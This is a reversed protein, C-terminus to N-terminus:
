RDDVNNNTPTVAEQEDDNEDNDDATNSQNDNGDENEKAEEEAAKLEEDHFYYAYIDHAVMMSYSSAYGNPIVVTISIEPNEYPAYSVFLAHASRTSDEEATGTKGAIKTYLDEFDAGHSDGNVVNYMGEHIQSWVDARLEVDSYIDPEYEKITEGDSNTQKDLISLNYCKGGNAVASVYKSLQVPAFSNSGQGIASRIADQDSLHPNVEDLEVGSTSDLGYMAAYKSLKKLGQENDINGDPKQALRYGVEFFFVNCSNEIAGCVDLKGHRGPWISCKPSPNVVDYIGKCNIKEGISIVNEMLGASAAVMKFTSGPALSSQTARNLFPSTKDSILSSYYDEDLGNALKNNNYSPYSVLAKIKGTKTDTVVISGSCPDLALNAPTIELNNIKKRMFDFASIMGSNLNEYDEDKDKNLVGQDFLIKCCDTGSVSGDDILYELVMKSFEEDDILSDCIYNALASMMEDTDYYDTSLKFNSNDIWSMHIAYELFDGLAIEDNKWQKYTSDNSDIDTGSIIGEDCMYKYIYLMYNQYEDSLSSEKTRKSLLENKITKLKTSKSSNIKNYVSKETSSAKKSNMHSMDILNNNFLAFFVETTTINIPKTTTKVNTNQFYKLIIGAMHKELTEYCTKQLEADISLYLDNGAKSDVTEKEDTQLIRGMNDVYITESGSKGRLINEYKQELGAKGVIENGYYKDNDDLESNYDEKEDESIIGTYGIISSLYPAYKYKRMSDIEINAGYLENSAEKIAAVSEDSIDMAVTVPVYQNYRNMYLLYRIAVIKYAREEDYVDSVNFFDESKLYNFVDEASSIKQIPTLKDVTTKYVEKKFNLVTSENSSKFYYTGKKNRRIEFSNVISDGNKELIDIMQNIIENKISNESIGLSLAKDSIKDDNTFTLSYTLQNYAVLNGNVDYINGRQGNTMITKKSTITFNDQYDQGNIIQLDFLRYVLILMLFIFIVSLAFLRHKIFNLISAKIDELM